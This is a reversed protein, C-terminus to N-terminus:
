RSRIMLGAVTPWPQQVFDQNLCLWFGDWRLAVIFPKTGTM